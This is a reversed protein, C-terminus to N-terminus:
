RVGSVGERLVVEVLTLGGPPAMLGAARRARAALVGDVASSARWGSGVEVLLGALNRVMHRLFADGCVDIVVAGDQRRTVVLSTITKTPTGASCGGGRLSSFDHTGILRTGADQMAAVDLTPAVAWALAHGGQAEAESAGDHVIYRYRKGAAVCRAHVSAPVVVVDHVVLGDDRPRRVDEIVAAIDLERPLWCTAVNVLAHVGRDTRAAFAMGRPGQGAARTLREVLAGGATALGPQPQLGFFAGAEYGFRVLLTARHSLDKM